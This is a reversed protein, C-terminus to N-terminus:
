CKRQSSQRGIRFALENRAFVRASKRPREVVFDPCGTPDVAYAVAVMLVSMVLMIRVM